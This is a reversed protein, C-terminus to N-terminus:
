KGSWRLLYNGTIKGLTASIDCELQAPITKPPPLVPPGSLTGNTRGCKAAYCYNGIGCETSGRKIKMKGGDGWNTGWSNKILWYDVGNENGYGVVL